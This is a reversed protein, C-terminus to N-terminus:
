GRRTARRCRVARPHHNIFRLLNPGIAHDAEKAFRISKLRRPSEALALWEIVLYLRTFDWSRCCGSLERQFNSLKLRGSVIGIGIAFNSPELGGRLNCTGQSPPSRSGLSYSKCACGAAIELVDIIGGRGIRARPRNRREGENKRAAGTRRAQRRVWEDNKRAPQSFNDLASNIFVSGAPRGAM